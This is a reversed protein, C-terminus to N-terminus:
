IGGLEGGAADVGRDGIGDVFVACEGIVSWAECALTHEGVLAFLAIGVIGDDLRQDVGAHQERAAPELVLIRM